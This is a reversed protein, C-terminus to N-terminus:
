SYARPPPPSVFYTSHKDDIVGRGSGGGEGGSGGSYSTGAGAGAAARRERVEGALDVCPIGEVEIAEVVDARLWPSVSTWFNLEVDYVQHPIRQTAHTQWHCLRYSLPRTFAGARLAALEPPTLSDAKAIAPVVTTVMSLQRM